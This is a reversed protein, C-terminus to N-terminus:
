SRTRTDPNPSFCVRFVGERAVTKGVVDFAGRYVGKEATQLRVKVLDFPHGLTGMLGM